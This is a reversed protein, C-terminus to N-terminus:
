FNMLMETDPTRHGCYTQVVQISKLSSIRDGHNVGQQKDQREKNTLLNAEHCFVMPLLLTWQGSELQM